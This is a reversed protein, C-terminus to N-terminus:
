ANVMIQDNAGREADRFMFWGPYMLINIGLLGLMKKPEERARRVHSTGGNYSGRKVSNDYLFRM